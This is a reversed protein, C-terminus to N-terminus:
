SPVTQYRRSNSKVRTRASVGRLENVEAAGIVLRIDIQVALFEAPVHAAERRELELHGAPQTRCAVREDHADVVLAMGLAHRGDVGVPPVVAAERAIDHQELRGRRKM